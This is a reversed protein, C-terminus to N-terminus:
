HQLGRVRSRNTIDVGAYFGPGSGLFDIRFKVWALKVERVANTSLAEHVDDLAERVVYGIRNWKEEVYCIFAIAMSDIPNQQEKQLAVYVDQGSRVAENASELADHHMKDRTAGIVKFRVTDLTNSDSDAEELQMEGDSQESGVDAGLRDLRSDDPTEDRCIWKWVLYVGENPHKLHHAPASKCFEEVQM